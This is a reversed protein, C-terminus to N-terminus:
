NTVDTSMNILTGNASRILSMVRFSTADVQAQVLLWARGTWPTTIGFKQSLGAANLQEVDNAKLPSFLTANETGLVKGDEGYLTGIVVIDQSSTNYFRLSATEVGGVRPINLVRLRAGNIKVETINTEAGFNPVFNPVGGGTLVATLQGANLVKTGDVTACINLGTSLTVAGPPPVPIGAITVSGGGGTTISPSGKVLTTGGCGTSTANGPNLGIELVGAALPGSITVTATAVLDAVTTDAASKTAIRVGGAGMATFPVVKLSGLTAVTTSVLTANPTSDFKKSAQKVDISVVPSNGAIDKPSITTKLATVFKLLTGGTSMTTAVGGQVYTTDINMDVTGGNGVTYASVGGAAVVGMPAMTVYCTGDAHTEFGPAINFTATSKGIASVAQSGSMATVLLASKNSAFTADVKASMNGSAITALTAGSFPCVLYPQDAFTSGGTLTVRISLYKASTVEYEAPVPILATLDGAYSNEVTAYNSMLVLSKEGGQEAAFVVPSGINSTASTSIAVPINASVSTIKVMALTQPSVVGLAAAVALALSTKNNMMKM